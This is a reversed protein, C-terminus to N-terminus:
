FYKNFQQHHKTAIRTASAGLGILCTYVMNYNTEEFFSRCKKVAYCRMSYFETRSSCNWDYHYMETFEYLVQVLYMTGFVFLFSYLIEKLIPTWFEYSNIGWFTPEYENKEALNFYVRKLRRILNRKTMENGADRRKIGCEAFMSTLDDKTWCPETNSFTFLNCDDQEFDDADDSDSIVFEDNPEEWEAVSEPPNLVSKKFLFGLFPIKIAEDLERHVKENLSDYDPDANPMVFTPLNEDEREQQKQLISKHLLRVPKLTDMSILNKLASFM